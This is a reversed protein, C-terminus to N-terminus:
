LGNHLFSSVLLHSIFYLIVTEKTEMVPLTYASSLKESFHRIQEKIVVIFDRYKLVIDFHKWSYLCINSNDTNTGAEVLRYFSWNLRWNNVICITEIYTAAAAAALDSWDYGVRHSGMSPLGGPEGTGPIRWALVSFNTM